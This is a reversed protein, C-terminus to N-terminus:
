IALRQTCLSDVRSITPGSQLETVWFPKRPAAQSADAILDLRYAYLAGYDSKPHQLPFHGPRMCPSASFRRFENEKWVDQGSADGTPDTVNFHTPHNPDIAEVQQKVWILQNVLNDVNFTKWDILAHYDTWYSTQQEQTIRADSFKSLPRFWHQNLVNVTGYKAQLWDGFAHFTAPETDYKTPENMLLWV